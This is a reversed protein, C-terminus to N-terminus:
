CCGGSPPRPALIVTSSETAPKEWRSAVIAALGQILTEIGDGTKASTLFHPYHQEACYRAFDDESVAWPRIDSKNGVVVIQCQGAPLDAFLATWDDVSAFTAPRSLDFVIVGFDAGRTFMPVFSRYQEQGATDWVNLTVDTGLHRAVIPVSSASVTPSADQISEHQAALLMSTKGVSADGVLVVKASAM